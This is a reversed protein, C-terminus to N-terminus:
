DNHKEMIRITFYLVGSGSYYELLDYSAVNRDAPYCTSKEWAYEDLPVANEVYAKAADLGGNTEDFVAEVMAPGVANTFVIFVDAM